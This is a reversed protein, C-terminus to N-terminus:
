STGTSRCTSDISNSSEHVHQELTLNKKIERTRRSSTIPKSTSAVEWLTHPTTCSKGARPRPTSPEGLRHGEVFRGGVPPQCPSQAISLFCARITPRAAKERTAMPQWASLSCPAGVSTELPPLPVVALPVEPVSPVPPVVPVLPSPVSPVPPDLPVSPVSPVVPLSSPLHPLPAQSSAKSFQPVHGFSQLQAPLRAQVLAPDHQRGVQPGM